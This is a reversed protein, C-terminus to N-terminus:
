RERLSLGVSEVHYNHCSQCRDGAAKATHCEVCQRKSIAVFDSAFRKPDVDTYSTATTASDDIAHCHTCDALQPLLLHPGHSFKTFGRPETTRDNARWNVVFEGSASKEVSHCSVCLGPANPKTLEKLMAAAVPRQNFDPTAALVDLLTTVVPDAHGRPQYRISFTAEDRL